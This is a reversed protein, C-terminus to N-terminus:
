GVAAMKMDILAHDSSVFYKEYWKMLNLLMWSKLPKDSDPASGLWNIIGQKDFFDPLCTETMELLQTLLKSSFWNNLPVPFSYKKRFLVEPPVRDVFSRKLIYKTTDLTETIEFSNLRACMNEYMPSNWHLKYKFPIQSVFQMLDPDTFPVRGEVSAGMTTNDLRGLLGQLHVSEMLYLYKNYQDLNKIRSFQNLWFNRLGPFGHMGTYVDARFIAEIEDPKMWSYVTLFHDLEDSFETKGYLRMLAKNLLKRQKPPLNSDPQSRIYDIPSRTIGGYGAFLEDAGEGSIVVTISEKLVKSMLYLPVENPVSLPADKIRIVEDLTDFYDEEEMAIQTHDTGWAAAVMDSFRFENYGEEDFGVSFTKVPSDSYESMLGVLIASDIGGSLYAGLPVDSILRRKLSETLSNRVGEVYYDEGKDEKEEEPIVPLMWYKRKYVKGDEVILYRGPELSNIGKFLTENGMVTQYHSLYYAITQLNPERQIGPYQLIAKIESAFIFDDGAQHFFLPKIGSRDRALLLRREQKDWFGFAFMGNFKEIARYGWEMCAHLLVETDSLTRFRHGKAELERRLDKYNYIEGNYTLHFRGSEDSMPQKGGQLDIIALRRHGLGISEDIYIGRGDPGRHELSDTMRQLVDTSIGGQSSFIGAIGCM